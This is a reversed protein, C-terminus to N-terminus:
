GWITQLERVLILYQERSVRQQIIDLTLNVRDRVADASVEKAAGLGYTGLLNIAKLRDSVEPSTTAVTVNGDADKIKVLAEGDAIQELLEIRKDFALRAAERTLSPTRGGGKNGPQGGALLAGGHEQPILAPLNVSADVAAAPAATKSQKPKAM